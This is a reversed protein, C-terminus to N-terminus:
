SESTSTADIETKLKEVIARRTALVDDAGAISGRMLGRVAKATRPREQAARQSVENMHKERESAKMALLRDRQMRLYEERSRITASNLRFPEQLLAPSFAQLRGM